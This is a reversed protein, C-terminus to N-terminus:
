GLTPSAKDVKKVFSFGGKVGTRPKLDQVSTKMGRRQSKSRGARADKKM